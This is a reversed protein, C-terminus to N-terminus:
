FIKELIVPVNRWFAFHLYSGVAVFFAEMSYMVKLARGAWRKRLLVWVNLLVVTAVAFLIWCFVLPNWRFAELFRGYLFSQICHTGGCTACQAGFYTWPCPKGQRFMMMIALRSLWIGPLIVVDMTLVAPVPHAKIWRIM